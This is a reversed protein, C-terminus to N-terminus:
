PECQKRLQVGDFKCSARFANCYTDDVCPPGYCV